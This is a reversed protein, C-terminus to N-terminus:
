VTWGGVADARATIADQGAQWIARRIEDADESDSLTDGRAGLDVPRWSDAVIIVRLGMRKGEARAGATFQALAKAFMEAEAAEIEECRGEDDEQAYAATDTPLELGAIRYDKRLNVEIVATRTM